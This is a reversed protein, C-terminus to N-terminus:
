KFGFFVVHRLHKYNKNEYRKTGKNYVADRELQEIVRQLGIRMISDQM